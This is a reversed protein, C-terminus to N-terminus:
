SESGSAVAVPATGVSAEGSGAGNPGGSGPPEQMLAVAVRDDARKVPTVVRRTLYALVGETLACVLGVTTADVGRSILFTYLAARVLAALAVPEATAIAAPTVTALPASM